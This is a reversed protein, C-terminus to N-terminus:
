RNDDRKRKKSALKSAVSHQESLQKFFSSSSKVTAGATDMRKVQGTKLAANVVKASTDADIKKGTSAATKVKASIKKEQETFKLHQKHKKHRRERKKDTSTKELDGKLLGRVPVTIEQPALLDSDNAVVPTNEELQMAPLNSVIKLEPNRLKPTYHANSLADLYGELEEYALRIKKHEPLEEEAKKATDMRQKKLYEEEYIKSLSKSSKEQDLVMKKKYEFPNEVLKAKREVDNFAKTRFRDLIVREIRACLEENIIPRLKAGSRFELYETLVSNTPRDAAQVEGKLAWPKESINSEELEQRLRTELELEKEFRSKVQDASNSETTEGSLRQAGSNNADSNDLHDAEDFTHLGWSDADKDESTIRQSEEIAPADDFFDKYTAKAGGNEEEDDPIDEMFDIDGFNDAGIIDEDAIYESQRVSFFQSDVDSRSFTPLHVKKLPNKNLKSTVTSDFHVKKKQKKNKQTDVDDENESDDKKEQGSEEEQQAPEEQMEEDSDVESAGALDEIPDDEEGKDSDNEDNLYHEFLQKDLENYASDDSDNSDENDSSDSQESDVKNSAEPEDIESSNSNEDDDSAVLGEDTSSKSDDGSVHETEDLEDDERGNSIDSEEGDLNDSDNDENENAESEDAESDSDDAGSNQSSSHGTTELNKLPVDILLQLETPNTDMRCMLETTLNVLSCTSNAEDTALFEEENAALQHCIQDYDMGDTYLQLLALKPKSLKFLKEDDRIKRHIQQCLKLHPGIKEQCDGVFDEINTFYQELEQSSM